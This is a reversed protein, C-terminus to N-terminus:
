LVHIHRKTKHNALANRYGAHRAESRYTSDVCGKSSSLQLTGHTKPDRVDLRPIYPLMINDYFTCVSVPLTSMALLTYLLLRESVWSGDM